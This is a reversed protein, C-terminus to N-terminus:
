TGPHTSFARRLTVGLIKKKTKSLLFCPARQAADREIQLELNRGKTCFIVDEVLVKKWGCEGHDVEYDGLTDWTSGEAVSVWQGGEIQCRSGKFAFAVVRHFYVRQSSLSPIHLRLDCRDGRWHESYAPGWREGTTKCIRVVRADSKVNPSPGWQRALREVIWRHNDDSCIEVSPPRKPM